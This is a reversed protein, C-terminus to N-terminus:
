LRFGLCSDGVKTGFRLGFASDWILIGFGYGLGSEVLSEWVQIEVM